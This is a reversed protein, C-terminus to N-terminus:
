ACFEQLYDRTGLAGDDLFLFPKVIGTMALAEDGLDGITFLRVLARAFKELAIVFRTTIELYVWRVNSPDKLKDMWQPDDGLVESELRRWTDDPSDTDHRQGLVTDLEYYRAAQGFESLLQVLQRLRPDRRLYQLDDRAAPRRLYDPRFCAAIVRDLLHVLDHGKRDSRFFSKGEPFKDTEGLHYLCIITKMLREFGNALLLMPLHYFDNVGGIRQLHGLGAEILKISTRVEEQIAWQQEITPAM